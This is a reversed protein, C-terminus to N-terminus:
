LKTLVYVYPHVTTYAHVVPFLEFIDARSLPKAGKRVLQDRYSDALDQDDPIYEVILCYRGALNNILEKRSKPEICHLLDCLICLDPEVVDIAEVLKKPREEVDIQLFMELSETYGKLLMKRKDVALAFKADLAESIGAGFWGTGCGIDAVKKFKPMTDLTLLSKATPLIFRKGYESLWFCLSRYDGITDVAYPHFPSREGLLYESLAIFPMREEESLVSVQRLVHYFNDWLENEDPTGDTYL